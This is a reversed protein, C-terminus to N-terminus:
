KQISGLYNMEMIMIASASKKLQQLPRFFDGAAYDHIMMNRASSM